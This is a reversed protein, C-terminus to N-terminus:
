AALMLSPETSEFMMPWLLRARSSASAAPSLSGSRGAQDPGPDPGGTGLQDLGHAAAQRRVLAQEPLQVEGLDVREISGDRGDVM